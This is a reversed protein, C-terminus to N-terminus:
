YKVTNTNSQGETDATWQLSFMKGGCQMKLQYYSKKKETVAFPSFMTM